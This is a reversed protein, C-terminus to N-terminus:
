QNTDRGHERRESRILSYGILAPIAAVVLPGISDRLISMHPQDSTAQHFGQYLFGFAAVVSVAILWIGSFRPYWIALICAPLITFGYLVIAVIEAATDNSGITFSTVVVFGFAFLGWISGLGIIVKTRDRM